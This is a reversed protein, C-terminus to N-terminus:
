APDPQTRTAKAMRAAVAEAEARDVGLAAMLGRVTRTPPREAAAKVANWAGGSALREVVAAIRTQAEADTKAGAAADAVKERLGRVTAAIRAEDSLDSVAITWTMGTVTVALVGAADPTPFSVRAM